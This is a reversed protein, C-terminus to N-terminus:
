ILLSLLNVVQLDVKTGPCWGARDFPWTGGQPYIPIMGCDKWVDWQYIDDGNISISNNQSGNVVAKLAKMGMDSVYSKVAVGEVPENFLKTVPQFNQDDALSQYSYGGVPSINEISLVDRPSVEIFDFDVTASFGSSWGDYHVRILM